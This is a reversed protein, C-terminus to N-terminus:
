PESVCHIGAAALAALVRGEVDRGAPAVSELRWGSDDDLRRLSVTLRAAVGFASRLAESAMEISEASGGAATIIM